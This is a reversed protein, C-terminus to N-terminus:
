IAVQKATDDRFSNQSDIPAEQHQKEDGELFTVYMERRLWRAEITIM